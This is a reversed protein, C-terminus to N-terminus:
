SSTRRLWRRSVLVAGWAMAFILPIFWYLGLGRMLYGVALAIINIALVFIIIKLRYSM